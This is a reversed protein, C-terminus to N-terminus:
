SQATWTDRQAGAASWEKRFTKEALLDEYILIQAERRSSFSTVSITKPVLGKKEMLLSEEANGSGGFHHFDFIGSQTLAECESLWEGFWQERKDRVPQPYLTASSWIRPKSADLPNHHLTKEDWRFEHLVGEEAWVLTFPELDHANYNAAFEEPTDYDFSQLPVLGRSHRYPPQHKHREYAGNLLCRARGDHHLAIWSGSGQPDRPFLVGPRNPDYTDPEQARARNPDEDRNSTLLFGDALPLYTVTCM